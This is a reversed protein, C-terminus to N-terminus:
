EDDQPYDDEHEADPFLFDMPYGEATEMKSLWDSVRRLERIGFHHNLQKLLADKDPDAKRVEYLIFDADKRNGDKYLLGGTLGVHYGYLPAKSEIDRAVSFAKEHTWPTPKKKSTLAALQDRRENCFCM